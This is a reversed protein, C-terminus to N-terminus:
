RRKGSGFSGPLCCNLLDKSKRSCRDAFVRTRKPFSQATAANVLGLVRLEVAEIEGGSRWRFSLIRRVRNVFLLEQSTLAPHIYSDEADYIDIVRSDRRRCCHLTGVGDPNDGMALVGIGGPLRCVAIGVCIQKGKDRRFARVYDGFDM